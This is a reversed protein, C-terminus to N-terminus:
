FDRPLYAKNKWHRYTAQFKKQSAWIRAFDEDNDAEEALVEQTVVKLQKLIEDSFQMSTVGKAAFGQMVEGQIGEGRSLNRIIGATCAMEILSKDAAALSEWISLNVVLHAATFTQHWGPFYNYKAVQDFGLMQDVAPMSYETADLAGKELAQFIEGGPIMTVSAGLKQIVKGGLGAFRIKLGKFDALSKIPFRFWGATEPGIVGCLIPHVRHPHYLSETLVKGEDEFYWATFEWPEMGFPVASILPTAPIRGQDYGLWTYGAEIKKDRVGETISLAPIVMGPEFVDFQINNRSSTKLADAVYLINDGLAPLNTGFAVPVRWRHLQRDSVDRNSLTQSHSSHSSHSSNSRLSLAGFVGVLFAIAIAFGASRNSWPNKIAM